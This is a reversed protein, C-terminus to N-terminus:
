RRGRRAPVVRQPPYVAAASGEAHVVSHLRPRWDIQEWQGGMITGPSLAVSHERTPYTRWVPHRVRYALTSGDWWRGLGWYHEKLWHDVSHAGPVGGRADSVVRLSGVREDIRLSTQILQERSTRTVDHHVDALVYPERYITRAAAVVVPHGVCERLFVAARRHGLRAYCRLNVEGFDQATPVRMGGVRLDRFRLAVVSVLHLGPQGDPTDPEAGPPLHQAVLEAPVHFSAIVVDEWRATLLPSEKWGHLAALQRGLHLMTMVSPESASPDECLVNVSM